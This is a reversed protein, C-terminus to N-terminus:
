KAQPLAIKDWARRGPQLLEGESSSDLSRIHVFLEGVDAHRFLERIDAIVAPHYFMCIVFQAFSDKIYVFTEHNHVWTARIPENTM